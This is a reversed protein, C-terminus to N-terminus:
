QWAGAGVELLQASSDHLPTPQLGFAKRVNRIQRKKVLEAEAANGRSDLNISSSPTGSELGWGVGAAIVAATSGNGEMLKRTTTARIHVVKTTSEVSFQQLGELKGSAASSCGAILEEILDLDVKQGSLLEM